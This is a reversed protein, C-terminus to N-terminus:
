DHICFPKTNRGNTSSAEGAGHWAAGQKNQTSLRQENGLFITTPWPSATIGKAHAISLKRSNNDDACISQPRCSHGNRRGQEKKNDKSEVTQHIDEIEAEKSPTM